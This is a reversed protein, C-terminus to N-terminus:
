GNWGKLFELMDAHDEKTFGVGLYHDILTDESHGMSATIELSDIGLDKRCEVLWSVLCKRLMKPNIGERGLGAKIAARIFAERMATRDRFELETGYLLDLAKCGGVTLKITRDTTKCKPKKCAGIAPLDILRASSHYWDKHKAVNWFEVVRLGTNLLCDAVIRYGFNPDLQDRFRAYEKPTLIRSGKRSIIREAM